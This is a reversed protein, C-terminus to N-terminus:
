TEVVKWELLDKKGANLLNDAFVPVIHNVKPDSKCYVSFDTIKYQLSLPKDDDDAADMELIINVTKDTVVEKIGVGDEPVFTKPSAQRCNSCKVNSDAFFTQRGSKTRPGTSLEQVVEIDDDEDEITINISNISSDLSQISEDFSTSPEMAIDEEPLSVITIDESVSTVDDDIIIENMDSM